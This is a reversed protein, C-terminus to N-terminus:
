LVETYLFTGSSPLYRAGIEQAWRVLEADHGSEVLASAVHEDVPVGGGIRLQVSWAEFTRGCAVCDRTTLTDTRKLVRDVQGDRDRRSSSLAALRARKRRQQRTM